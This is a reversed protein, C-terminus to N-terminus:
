RGPTKEKGRGGAIQRIKLVAERSPKKIGKIGARRAEAGSAYLEVDCPKKNAETWKIHFCQMRVNMNDYHVELWGRCVSDPDNHCIFTGAFSMPDDWRPLKDYEERAWIGPPTDKRYPCTNCPNPACNLVKM